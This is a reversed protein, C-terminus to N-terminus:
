GDGDKIRNINPNAPFVDMQEEILDSEGGECEVPPEAKKQKLIDLESVDKLGLTSLKEKLLKQKQSLSLEGLNLILNNTTKGGVQTIRSYGPMRDMIKCMDDVGRSPFKEYHKKLKEQSVKDGNHPLLMVTKALIDQFPHYDVGQQMISQINKYTPKSGYGQIEKESM